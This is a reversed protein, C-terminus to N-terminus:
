SIEMAMVGTLLYRIYDKPLLLTSARAFIDPENDRVWLLKPATFGTLAPNSVYEILRSAGVKETMWRCQADSRQDAWIICPRLVKYDQDLLVVGHMQGSLGVGRIDGSVVGHVAGISLCSRIATITAKWWLEPDQEAWGPHPHVLPYDVFASSIVHGDEATFLAAKVGTTGLDIGLLAQM